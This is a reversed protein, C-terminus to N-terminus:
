IDHLPMGLESTYVRSDVQQDRSFVVYIRAARVIYFRFFFLLLIYFYMIINIVYIM